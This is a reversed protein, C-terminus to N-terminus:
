PFQGGTAARVPSRSPRVSRRRWPQEPDVASGQLSYNLPCFAALANIKNPAGWVMAQGVAETVLSWLAVRHGCIRDSLSGLAVRVLIFGIGFATMVLGAHTWAHAAFYLSALATLGSLGVGQLMLSLGERWIQGVVRYFPLREGASTTHSTAGTAIIAATIPTAICSVMATELGYSRYLGMGVPAGIALAGFM